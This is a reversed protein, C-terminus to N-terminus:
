EREGVREGERGGEESGRERRRGGGGGEKRREEAGEMSGEGVGEGERGGERWRERWVQFVNEQFHLSLQLSSERREMDSRFQTWRRSLTSAVGRLQNVERHGSVEILQYSSLLKGVREGVEEM